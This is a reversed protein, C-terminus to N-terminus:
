PPLTEVRDLLLFGLNVYPVDDEALHSGGQVIVGVDYQFDM